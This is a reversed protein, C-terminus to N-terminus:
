DARPELRFLIAEAEQEADPEADYKRKLAARFADLEAADDTRVAVLEYLDDGVRLRVRPDAAIHQAWAAEEGRGSAVYFAGGASAGWVNVSYPDSPRTELQMTEVADTFSWDSPVPKVTGSLEGGPIVVLPGCAALLLCSALIAAPRMGPAHGLALRPAM